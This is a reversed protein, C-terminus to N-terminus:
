LGSRDAIPMRYRVEGVLLSSGDHGFLLQLQGADDLAFLGTGQVHTKGYRNPVESLYAPPGYRSAFEFVTRHMEARAILSMAQDSLADPDRGIEAFGYSFGVSVSQLRGDPFAFVIKDDLHDAGSMLVTPYFGGDSLVIDAIPNLHFELIQGTESM